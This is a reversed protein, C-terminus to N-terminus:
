RNFIKQLIEKPSVKGNKIDEIVGTLVHDVLYKQIVKTDIKYNIHDFSGYFNTNFAPANKINIAIVAELDLWYKPIDLTGTASITGSSSIMKCKDVKAIGNKIMMSADISNFTTKGQMFSTDLVKLADRLNRAQNLINIINQLNLGSLVGDRSALNVEGFLSQVHEKVSKGQSNLSARFDLAGEAIKIKGQTPVINKLQANKIEFDLTLQQNALSSLKGSGVLAGGFLNGNISNLNLIGDSLQLETKIDSFILSNFIFKPISLNIDADFQSLFSLDIKSNPWREKIFSPQNSNYSTSKTETQKNVRLKADHYHNALNIQSTTINLSIKPKGKTDAIGDANISFENNGIKLKSDNTTFSIQNAGNTNFKSNFDFERLNGNIPQGLLQHLTYDLNEGRFATELFIAPHQAGLNVTGTTNIVAQAISIISDIAIINDALGIAGHAHFKNSLVSFPTSLNLKSANVNLDYNVNIPTTTDNIHINGSLIDSDSISLSFNKAIFKQNIYSSDFSLLLPSTFIEAWPSPVHVNTSALFIGINEADLKFRMNNVKNNSVISTNPIIALSINGPQLNLNTEITSKQINYKASAKATIIDAQLDLNSIIIEEKNATIEANLLYNHAVQTLPHNSIKVERLDGKASLTGLFELKLINFEGTVILKQQCMSQIEARLPITDAIQGISGKLKLWDDSINFDIPGSMSGIDIDISSNNGTFKYSNSHTGDEDSKTYQVEIGDIIKIHKINVKDTHKQEKNYFSSPTIATIIQQDKQSISIAKSTIKVNELNINSIVIKGLLLPLVEISFEASNVKVISDYSSTPLSLEANEVKIRAKPLFSFSVGGDITLDFGTSKKTQEILISKCKEVPFLSPVLFLLTILILITSIVYKTIRYM